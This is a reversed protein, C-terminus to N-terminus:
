HGVTIIVHTMSEYTFTHETILQYGGLQPPSVTHKQRGPEQFFFFFYLNIYSYIRWHM